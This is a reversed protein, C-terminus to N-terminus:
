GPRRTASFRWVEHATTFGLREYLRRAPNGVTVALWVSADGRDVLRAAATSLLAAGVGRGTWGPDVAIDTIWPRPGADPAADSVVVVGGIVGDGSVAHLSASAIWPGPDEGAMYGAMLQAAAVPDDDEPQHDVHDGRYAACVVRGYSAVHEHVAPAISIGSPVAIVALPQTLDLVMRVSHRELVEGADLRARAGVPDDLIETM